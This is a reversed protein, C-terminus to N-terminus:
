EKSMCTTGVSVSVSLRCQLESVCTIGVRLCM